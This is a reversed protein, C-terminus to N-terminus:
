ADLATNCAGAAAPLQPPRARAQPNDAAHMWPAPASGGRFRPPLPRPSVKRIVNTIATSWTRQETIRDGGRARTLVTHPYPTQPLPHLRPSFWQQSSDETMAEVAKVADASETSAEEAFAKLSQKMEM